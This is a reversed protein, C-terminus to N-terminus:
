CPGSLDFTFGGPLAARSSAEVPLLVQGAPAFRRSIGLPVPVSVVVHAKVQNEYPFTVVASGVAGNQRAFWTAAERLAHGGAAAQRVLCGRERATFFEGLAPMLPVPGGSLLASAVAPHAVRARIASRRYDARVDAWERAIIRAIEEDTLPPDSGDRLEQRRAVEWHAMDGSVEAAVAEWLVRLKVELAARAAPEFAQEAAQLAGLAAADAARQGARRAVFVAFLDLLLLIALLGVGM